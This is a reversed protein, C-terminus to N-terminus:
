ASTGLASLSLASPASAQLQLHLGGTVETATAYGICYEASAFGNASYFLHYRGGRKVLCPAQFLLPLLSPHPTAVTTAACCRHLCHPRLQM